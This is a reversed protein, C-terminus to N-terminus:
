RIAVRWVGRGHTFAFLLKQGAPNKMLVLWETVTPGFGTEEAMWTAGGNISVFVGLDTGLYLRAPDDPDAVISHVPIDPLGTAGSGDISTWTAGDNITKYVHAGGFNGYTAYQINSDRPDFAISTIWGDRPRAQQWSTTSTSSLASRTSLIDGKHTGVVVHQGLSQPDIVIASALGQDPLQTSAKIWQDAGTSTRYLFEGGAWLRLPDTNDMVMPAVFLYNADPGLVDTRQPDLGNLKMAFTAGGDISKGLSLWQYNAYLTQTDAPNVASYGGDGGFLVRWGESGAEDSGLLTSNDQAGGMYHTGDPFVVGHYFQTVGYNHNLPEWAMSNAANSCAARAGTATDGRATTSRYIGGDNGILVEANGAGDYGPPFAIAHQDPHVGNRSIMALGWNRGGDDSRFWSVGSAWVRNADKPDVALVNNYWGMNTFTDTIQPSNNNCERVMPGSPNTLILTYLKNSDTNTVRAEWSGPDGSRQSRWVALLGQRYNGGPGEDNSASLAYITDPASPAVAISTRGMGPERLVVEASDSTSARAFRYVTAQEYSGCSAFLMDDSRDPRIALDLCGGRVSTRLLATWSAGGDVSRWVGTRTAAYLRQRDGIGLELDNVWYFDEGATASLRQWSNGGDRSTYVGGGRLPLGTGRIEERFYGEGTGVFMVDPQVPNIVMSNVAINALGQVIPRWSAGSDDTRWIGGSVGAAYITGPRTPHYRLVRTRGGINGPGLPTWTDLLATPSVRDGTAIVRSGNFWVQAAPDSSPIVRGIRSSFRELRALRAEALEYLAPTNVGDNLPRRRAWSQWAAADPQDLHRDPESGACASFVVLAGIACVLNKSFM